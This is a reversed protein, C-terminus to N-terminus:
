LKLDMAPLFPGVPNQQPAPLEAQEQNQFVESNKFM